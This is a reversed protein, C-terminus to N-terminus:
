DDDLGIVKGAEGSVAEMRGLTEDHLIQLKAHITAEYQPLSRALHVVQSAIVTMLGGLLFTLLLVAILVSSTHGIGVRRLGRMVPAMLLGLILALTVPVLVDKGFYLLALIAATAIITLARQNAVTLPSLSPEEPM